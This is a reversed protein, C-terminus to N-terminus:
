HDDFQIFFHYLIHQNYQCLLSDLHQLLYALWYWIPPDGGVRSPCSECSEVKAVKQGLFVEKEFDWSYIKVTEVINSELINQIYVCGNNQRLVNFDGRM